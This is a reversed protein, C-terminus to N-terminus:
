SVPIPRTGVAKDGMATVRKHARELHDKCVPIYARGDAWILGKTAPADCYKCSQPDTIHTRQSREVIGLSAIVDHLPIWRPSRETVARKSPKLRRHQRVVKFREGDKIVTKATDPPCFRGNSAHYTHAM